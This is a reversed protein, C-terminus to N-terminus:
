GLLSRVLEPSEHSVLLLTRGRTAWVALTLDADQSIKATIEPSPPNVLGESQTSYLHLQKMDPLLFCELSVRRNEIEYLHCGKRVLADLKPPLGDIRPARNALLWAGVETRDMSMLSLSIGQRTIATLQRTLKGLTFAQTEWWWKGGVALSAAIGAGWGLWRRRSQREEAVATRPLRVASLVSERLDEPPEGIGRAARMAIRLADELGAPPEIQGLADRMALDTQREDDLHVTIGSSDAAARAEPVGLEHEDQGHPRLSRLLQLQEETM